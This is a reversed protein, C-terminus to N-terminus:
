LNENKQKQKWYFYILRLLMRDSDQYLPDINFLEKIKNLRFLVTNRHIFLDQATCLINMNNKILSEMTEILEPKNEIQKIYGELHHSFHFIPIQSLLYEGIYDQVFFIEKQGKMMEGYEIMFKAELFSEKLDKLSEYYTGVGIILEGAFDQKIATRISYIYEQLKEKINTDNTEQTTKFIVIQDVDIYSSIDEKTHYPSSKILELMESKVLELTYLPHSLSKQLIYQISFLCAVRPKKLDYGLQHGWSMVAWEDEKTEISLLKNIFFNKQSQHSYMREKLYEQEMMLEVVMKVMTAAKEIEDPVGTIGVVGVIAENYYFPMNVGEKVGDYLYVNSVNIDIRKQEKIVEAAVTHFTGIREQCGSAVIIGKDNMINVNYGLNLVISDVVRQAWESNLIM